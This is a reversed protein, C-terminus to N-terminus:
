GEKDPVRVYRNCVRSLRINVANLLEKYLSTESDDSEEKPYESSVVILHGVEESLSMILTTMSRVFEDGSESDACKIRGEWEPEHMVNGVLNAVCELLVASEKPKAMLDPAAGILTPIELTIFGKGERSRRHEDRRRRSDEDVVKMTAIYYRFAYRGEMALSEALESKGCKNKGCVFTIM